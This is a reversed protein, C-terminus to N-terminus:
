ENPLAFDPHSWLKRDLLENIHPNKLAGSLSSRLGPFREELENLLDKMQSRRLIESSGCQSCAEVPWKQSEVFEKIM